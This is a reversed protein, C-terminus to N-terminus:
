LCINRMAQDYYTFSLHLKTCYVNEMIGFFVKVEALTKEINWAKANNVHRHSVCGDCKSMQM